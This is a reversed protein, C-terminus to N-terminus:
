LSAWDGLIIVVKHSLYLCAPPMLLTFALQSYVSIPYVDLTIQVTLICRLDTSQIWQNSKLFPLWCILSIFCIYSPSIIHDIVCFSPSRSSRFREYIMISVWLKGIWLNFTSIQIVLSSRSNQSSYLCNISYLCLNSRSWYDTNSFQGLLLNVQSNSFHKVSTFYPVLYPEIPLFQSSFSYVLLVLLLRRSVASRGGEPWWRRLLEM